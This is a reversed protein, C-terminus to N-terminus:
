LREGMNIVIAARGGGFSAPLSEVRIDDAVVSLRIIYPVIFPPMGGHPPEVGHHEPRGGQQYRYVMWYKCM